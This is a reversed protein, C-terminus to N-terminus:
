ARFMDRDRGQGEPDRSTVPWTVMPNAM